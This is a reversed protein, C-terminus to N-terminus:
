RPPDRSALLADFQSVPAKIFDLEGAIFASWRAADEAIFEVEIRNTLPPVKGELGELGLGSQREPDYGERALSFPEERFDSNRALVARASDFSVLRYPGSGVPHLSLEPGYHEVAERPVIASF